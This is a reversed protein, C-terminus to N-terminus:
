GLTSSGAGGEVGGVSQCSDITTLWWCGGGRGWWREAWGRVTTSLSGTSPAVSDSPLVFSKEKAENCARACVCRRLSLVRLTCSHSTQVCLPDRCAFEEFPCLFRHVQLWWCVLVWACLWQYHIMEFSAFRRFIWKERGKKEVWGWYQNDKDTMIWCLRLENCDRKVSLIHFSSPARRDVLWSFRLYNDYRYMRM